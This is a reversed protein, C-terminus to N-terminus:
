FFWWNGLTFQNPNIKEEHTCINDRHEWWQTVWMFFFRPTSTFRKMNVLSLGNFGIFTNQTKSWPQLFSVMIKDKCSKDLWHFPTGMVTNHIYFSPRSTYKPFIMAEPTLYDHIWHVVHTLIKVEIFEWWHSLFLLVNLITILIELYYYQRACHRSCLVFAILAIKVKIIITTIKKM